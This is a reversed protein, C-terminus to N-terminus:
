LPLIQDETVDTRGEDGYGYFESEAGSIEGGLGDLDLDVGVMRVGTFLDVYWAVVTAEAVEGFYDVRVKQGKTFPM